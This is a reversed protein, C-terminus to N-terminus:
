WPFPDRLMNGYLEAALPSVFHAMRQRMSFDGTLENRREALEELQRDMDMVNLTFFVGSPRFAAELPRVHLARWAEQLAEKDRKLFM